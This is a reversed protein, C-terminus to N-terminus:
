NQGHRTRVPEPQAPARYSDRGVTDGDQLWPGPSNPSSSPMDNSGTSTSPFQLAGELLLKRARRIAMDYGRGGPWRRVLNWLADELRRIYETKSMGNRKHQAAATRASRVATRRPQDLRGQRPRDM